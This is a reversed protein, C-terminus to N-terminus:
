KGYYLSCVGGNNQQQQRKNKNKYTINNNNTKTINNNNNNNTINNNNNNNLRSLVAVHLLGVKEDPVPDIDVCLVKDPVRGEM